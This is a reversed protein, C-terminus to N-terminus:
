LDFSKTYMVSFRPDGAAGDLDNKDVAATFEAKTFAVRVHNYDGAGDYNYKGVTVALSKDKSFEFTYGATFYVDNTNSATGSKDVTFYLGAVFKQYSFKAFAETFDLGSQTPYRYNIAGVSLGMDKGLNFNYSGYLDLETGKGNAGGFDVNSVWTGIALNNGFDYDLGGQLAAQDNTQTLGRWIYNNTASMNGTFPGAHAVTPFGVAALVVGMMAMTTKM